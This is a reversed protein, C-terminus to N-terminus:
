RALHYKDHYNNGAPTELWLNAEATINEILECEVHHYASEFADKLAKKGDKNCRGYFSPLSTSFLVDLEAQNFGRLILSLCYYYALACDEYEAQDRASQLFMSGVVDAIDDVLDNVTLRKAEAVAEKTSPIGPIKPKRSKKEKTPTTTAGWIAEPSSTIILPPPQVPM